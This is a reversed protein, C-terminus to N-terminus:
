QNMQNLTESIAHMARHMKFFERMAKQRARYKIGADKVKNKNVLYWKANRNKIKLKNEASYKRRIADIKAKNKVRYDSQYARTKEPERRKKDAKYNCVKCWSRLGDLRGRQKYFECVAKVEGCKSCRKTTPQEATSNM